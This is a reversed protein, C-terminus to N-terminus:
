ASPPAPRMVLRRLGEVAAVGLANAVQGQETLVAEVALVGAQLGRQKGADLRRGSLGALAVILAFQEFRLELGARAGPIGHEPESQRLSLAPPRDVAVDQVRDRRVSRLVGIETVAEMVIARHGVPELSAIGLSRM